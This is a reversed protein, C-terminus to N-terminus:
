INWLHRYSEIEDSTFQVDHIPLDEDCFVKYTHEDIRDFAYFFCAYWNNLIQSVSLVIDSRESIIQAIELRDHTFFVM